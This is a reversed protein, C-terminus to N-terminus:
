DTRGRSVIVEGGKALGALVLLVGCGRLKNVVIAAEAGTVGKLAIRLISV